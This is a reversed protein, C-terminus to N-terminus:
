SKCNEIIKTLYEHLQAVEDKSIGDLAKKRNSETIPQMTQLNVTAKDTPTLNFRRRDNIHITRTLYQKKVLIEVIRTVSAFDKFAAEAIEQQTWDPNDSIAKLVLWQDITLDFGHKMMNRQAFQRYCKIAKELSYFLIGDLKEM